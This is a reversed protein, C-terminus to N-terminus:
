NAFESVSSRPSLVWRMTARSNPAAIVSVSGGTPLLVVREVGGVGAEDRRELVIERRVLEVALAGDAEREGLRNRHLQNFADCLEARVFDGLQLLRLRGRRLLALRWAIPLGQIALGLMQRFGGKM